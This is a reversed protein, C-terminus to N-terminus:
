TVSIVKIPLSACVRVSTVGGDVEDYFM